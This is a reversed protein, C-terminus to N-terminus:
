DPLSELVQESKAESPSIEVSDKQDMILLTEKSEEALTTEEELHCYTAKFDVGHSREEFDKRLNEELEMEHVENAEEKSLHPNTAEPCHHYIQHVVMSTPLGTEPGM